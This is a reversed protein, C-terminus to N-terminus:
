GTNQVQHRAGHSTVVEAPLLPLVGYCLLEERNAEITERVKRPRALGGVEGDANADLIKASSSASPTV